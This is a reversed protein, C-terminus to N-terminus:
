TYGQATREKVIGPKSKKRASPKVSVKDGASFEEDSTNKYFVKVRYKGVPLHALEMDINDHYDKYRNIFADWPLSRTSFTPDIKGVAPLAYSCGGITMVKGNGKLIILLVKTGGM